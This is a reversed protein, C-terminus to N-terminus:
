AGHSGDPRPVRVVREGEGPAVELPGDEALALAV